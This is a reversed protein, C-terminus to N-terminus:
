GLTIGPFGFEETVHLSAQVPPLPINLVQETTAYLSGQM